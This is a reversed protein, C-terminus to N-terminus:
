ERVFVAKISKEGGPPKFTMVLKGDWLRHTRYVLVPGEAPALHLDSWRRRYTGTTTHPDGDYEGKATFGGTATYKGQEDLTMQSIPFPSGHPQIDVTKWTGAVSCGGLPIAFGLAAPM